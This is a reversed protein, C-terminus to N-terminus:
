VAHCSGAALERDRRSIYSKEENSPRGRDMSRGNAANDLMQSCAIEARITPAFMSTKSTHEWEFIPSQDYSFAIAIAASTRSLQELVARQWSHPKSRVFDPNGDPGNCGCLWEEILRSSIAQYQKAV